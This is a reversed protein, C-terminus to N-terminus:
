GAHRCQLHLRGPSSLALGDAERATRCKAQVDAVSRPQSRLISEKLRIVTRKIQDALEDPVRDDRLEARLELMTLRLFIPSPADGRRISPNSQM